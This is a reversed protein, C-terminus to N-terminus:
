CFGDCVRANTIDLLPLEEHSHFYSCLWALSSVSVCSGDTELMVSCLKSGDLKM